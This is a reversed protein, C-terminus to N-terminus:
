FLLCYLKKENVHLYTGLLLPREKPTVRHLFNPIPDIISFDFGDHGLKQSISIDTYVLGTETFNGWWVFYSIQM